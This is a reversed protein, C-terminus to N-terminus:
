SLKDLSKSIDSLIKCDQQADKIAKDMEEAQESAEKLEKECDKEATKLNTVAQKYEKIERDLNQEQKKLEALKKKIANVDPPNAMKFSRKSRVSLPRQAFTAIAVARASKPALARSRLCIDPVYLRCRAAKRFAAPHRM